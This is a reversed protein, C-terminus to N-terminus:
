GSVGLPVLGSGGGGELSLSHAMSPSISIDAVSYVGWVLM